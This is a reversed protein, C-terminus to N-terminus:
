LNFIWTLQTSQPQMLGLIKGNFIHKRFIVQIFISEDAQTFENSIESCITHSHQSLYSDIYKYM